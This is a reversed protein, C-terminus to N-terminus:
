IGSFPVTLPIFQTLIMSVRLFHLYMKASAPTSAYRMWGAPRRSASFYRRNNRRMRDKKQTQLPTPYSWRSASRGWPPYRLHFEKGDNDPNTYPIGQVPFVAAVACSLSVALCVPNMLFMSFSIVAAFYVIGVIPHLRSFSDKM